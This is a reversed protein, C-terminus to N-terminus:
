EDDGSSAAPPAALEADADSPPRWGNPAVHFVEAYELGERQGTEHMWGRVMREVNEFDRGLQSHHARLADIKADITASVDVWRNPNPAGMVWLEDVKHPQLGEELLLEPFDWPNQSAPYLAAIAAEAVALHDPHYFGIRYPDWVRDPCMAILRSPRHTRLLRVLDRRLEISPTVQGDPYDLFHVGVLGLVEASARQEVKRTESVRRRAAPGVDIADDGGGATGDTVVVLHVDWNERAWLAMTGAAGFEADDPHAVIVMARPELDQREEM